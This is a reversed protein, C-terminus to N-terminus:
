LKAFLKHSREKFEIVGQKRSETPLQELVEFGRLMKERGWQLGNRLHDSLKNDSRTSPQVESLSIRTESEDANLAAVIDSKIAKLDRGSLGEKELIRLTRLIQIKEGLREDKIEQSVKSNGDEAGNKLLVTLLYLTPLESGVPSPSVPYSKEFTDEPEIGFHVDSYAFDEKITTDGFNIAFATITERHNNKLRFRVQGDLITAKVEEHGSTKTVVTLEKPSAQAGRNSLVTYVLFGLIPLLIAAGLFRRLM